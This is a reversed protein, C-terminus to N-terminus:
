LRRNYHRESASSVADFPLPQFSKGNDESWYVWGDKNGVLLTEDENYNPSLAISNLPQDGVVAGESYTLGSNTTLYVRGNAGDFSGIFWSNDDVM